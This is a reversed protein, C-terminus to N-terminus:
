NGALSMLTILFNRAIKSNKDAKSLYKSNLHDYDYFLFNHLGFDKALNFFLSYLESLKICIYNNAGNFFMNYRILLPMYQICKAQLNMDHIVLDFSEEAKALNNMDNM